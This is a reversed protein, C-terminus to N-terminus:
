ASKPITVVIDGHKNKTVLYRKYGYLYNLYDIVDCAYNEDKTSSTTSIILHFHKKYEKTCGFKHLYVIELYKTITRTFTVITDMTVKPRSSFISKTYKDFNYDSKIIELLYKTYISDGRMIDIINKSSIKLAKCLFEIDPMHISTIGRNRSATFEEEYVLINLIEMGGPTITSIDERRKYTPIYNEINTEKSVRRKTVKSSSSSLNKIIAEADM